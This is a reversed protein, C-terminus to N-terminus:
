PEVGLSILRDRLRRTSALDADFDHFYEIAIAGSYGRERLADILDDLALAGRGYHVQMRDRDADRIHVNVTLEILDATESLGFGQMVFHSPDYTLGTEPWLERLVALAEGPEELLSGQHAEVSLQVGAARARRGLDRLRDAILDLAERRNQGSIANGPQVTLQQCDLRGALRLLAEYQRGYVAFAEPAPDNLMPGPRANIGSVELGASRVAAAVSDAPGADSVLASPDVNQWGELAALDARTFGLERILALAETLAPYREVAAVLTSCSLKM